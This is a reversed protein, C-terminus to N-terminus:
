SSKHRQRFKKLRAFIKQHSNGSPELGLGVIFHSIYRLYDEDTLPNDIPQIYCKFKSLFQNILGYYILNEFRDRDSRRFEKSAKIRKGIRKGITMIYAIDRQHKVIEEDKIDGAIARYAPPDLGSKNKVLKYNKLLTVLDDEFSKHVIEIANGELKKWDPQLLYQKFINTLDKQLQYLFMNNVGIDLTKNRSLKKESILKFVGVPSGSQDIKFIGSESIRRFLTDYLWQRFDRNSYGNASKSFEQFLIDLLHYPKESKM